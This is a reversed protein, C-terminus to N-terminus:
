KNQSLCKEAFRIFEQKVHAALHDKKWILSLHWNIPPHSITIQKVDSTLGKVASEPLLTIGMNSAVMEEIFDLQSTESIIRPEFHSQRCATYICDRLAFDKNFMIFDENKLDELAAEKRHALRHKSPVILKLAEQGLSYSDFTHHPAPLFVVGFDLKENRVKEEIGKSGDEVLQFTIDPYEKHFSAILSTFFVSDIISPLGIRILGKTHNSLSALSDQLEQFQQDMKQAHEYFVRGADTLRLKKRSRIFLPMGAEDELSKMMRSIAPQTMYLEDAARTFSGTDTVKIFYQLHKIEM